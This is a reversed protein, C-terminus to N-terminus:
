IIYKKFIILAEKYGEYYAMQMPTHGNNDVAKLYLNQKIYKEILKINKTAIAEHLPSRGYRTSPSSDKDTQYKYTKRPKILGKEEMEKIKEQIRRENDLLFQEKSKGAQTQRKSHQIKQMARIKENSSLGSFIIEAQQDAMEWDEDEEFDEAEFVKLDKLDNMIWDVQKRTVGKRQLIELMCNRAYLSM